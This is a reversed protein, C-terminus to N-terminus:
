ENKERKKMTTEWVRMAQDYDEVTAALVKVLGEWEALSMTLCAGPGSKVSEAIEVEVFWPDADVATGHVMVSGNQFDPTERLYVEVRWDLGEVRKVNMEIIDGGTQDTLLWRRKADIEM